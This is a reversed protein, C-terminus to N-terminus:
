LSNPLLKFDCLDESGATDISTNEKHTKEAATNKEPSQLVDARILPVIFLTSISKRICGLTNVM